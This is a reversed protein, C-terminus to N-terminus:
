GLLALINGEPNKFHACRDINRGMQVANGFM